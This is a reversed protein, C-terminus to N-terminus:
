FPIIGFKFRKSESAKGFFAGRAWGKSNKICFNQIFNGDFVVSKGEGYYCFVGGGVFPVPYMYSPSERKKERGCETFENSVVFVTGVSDLFAFADYFNRVKCGEMCFKGVGRLSLGGGEGNITCNEFKVEECGYFEWRGAVNIEIGSFIVKRQYFDMKDMELSHVVQKEPASYIVISKSDVVVGAYFNRIYDTVDFSSLEETMMKKAEDFSESSQMLVSEAVKSLYELETVRIGLLQILEALYAYNSDAREGLAALVIGNLTFYYKGEGSQYADAFEKVEVLSIDLAKRMYDEVQLECHLGKVIRKLFLLQMDAADNEYQVVTALMQIYLSKIYEEKDQLSGNKIMYKENQLEMFHKRIESINEDIKGM